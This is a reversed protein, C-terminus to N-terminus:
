YYDNPPISFDPIKQKQLFKIEDTLIILDDITLTKLWFKRLIEYVMSWMLPKQINM